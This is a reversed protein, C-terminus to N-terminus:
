PFLLYARVFYIPKSSINRVEIELDEYWTESQLHRVEVLAVPMDKFDRTKLKRKQNSLESQVDLAYTANILCLSALAALILLLFRKLSITINQQASRVNGRQTTAPM